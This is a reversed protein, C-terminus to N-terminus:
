LITMRSLSSFPRTMATLEPNVTGAMPSMCQSERSIKVRPDAGGGSLSVSDKVNTEAFNLM